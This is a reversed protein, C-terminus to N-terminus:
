VAMRSVGYPRATSLEKATLLTFKGLMREEDTKTTEEMYIRATVRPIDSTSKVLRAVVGEVEKKDDYIAESFAVGRSVAMPHPTETLCVRFHTRFLRHAVGSVVEDGGKILVILESLEDDKV